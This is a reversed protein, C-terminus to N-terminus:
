GEAGGINQNLKVLEALVKEQLATNEIVAVKVAAVENKTALTNSNINALDTECSM